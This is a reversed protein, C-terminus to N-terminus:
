NFMRDPNGFSIREPLMYKKQMDFTELFNHPTPIRTESDKIHRLNQDLNLGNCEAAEPVQRDPTAGRNSRSQNPNNL